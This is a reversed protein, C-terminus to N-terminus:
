PDDLLKAGAGSLMLKQSGRRSGADANFMLLGQRLLDDVAELLSQKKGKVAEAVANKSQAGDRVASLIERDRKDLQQARTLSKGAIAGLHFGNRHLFIPELPKVLLSGRTSRLVLPDGEERGTRQVQREIESWKATQLLLVFRCNDAIAASGTAAYMDTIEDRYNQKGTHHPLIVAAGTKVAFDTCGAITLKIVQEDNSNGGSFQRLTDLAVLVLDAIGEVAQLLAETLGTSVTVGSMSTTFTKIGGLGQLSVVRVKKGVMAYEDDSLKMAQCVLALAAVMDEQPDDNTLLLTSGHTVDCGMFKRQIAICICMYLLLTTKGTGGAAVLAGVKAAQILGEVVWRVDHVPKTLDYAPEAQVAPVWKTLSNNFGSMAAVKSIAASIESPTLTPNALIAAMNRKAALERIKTAHGRIAAASPIFQALSNLYELDVSEVGQNKLHSFVSIVDAVEGAEHLAVLARFIQAHRPDSFDSSALDGCQNLSPSNLLLAGLVAHELEPSHM